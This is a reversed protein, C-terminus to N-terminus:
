KFKKPDTYVELFLPSGTFSLPSVPGFFMFPFKNNSSPDIFSKYLQIASDNNVLESVKRLESGSTLGYGFAFIRMQRLIEEDLSELTQTIFMYGIGYKRTTKVSGIIETTLEKVRPDFSESAIFRHAEDMVILCNAKKGQTYLRAGAEVIKEEIIKIFLAQINENEIEGSRGSIDLVIFNGNQTVTKDVIEEVSIKKGGSDKQQNFLKLAADWKALITHQNDLNESIFKVRSNLRSRTDKTGFVDCVYKSFGTRKEEEDKLELFRSLMELLLKKGDGLSSLNFSPKNSRGRLYDVVSDKVREVKEKDYLPKFAEEIFGNNSLLDGFLEYKDGPLYIDNLIEYKEYNMGIKKIRPELKENEVGLLERDTYFQKQPDLVLISINNKNKAYGLLMYAATVTKGSGTKGFVGIHYADGAGAEHNKTDTRDFHKFWLPLDVNTGYVTGLLTIDKEYNKMLASMVENNMKQIREGTSPSTGLIYSEPVSNGLNYCAQVSITAIRNDATGSLHPLRGHRKIVGKFSPDEHWRNKTQIEIIQGIVLINKGDEELVAYAMQGLTRETKSEETIDITIDLTNSPSSTIGVANKGQSKIVDLLHESITKQPKDM